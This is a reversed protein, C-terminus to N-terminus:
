PDIGEIYAALRRAESAETECDRDALQAVIAEADARARERYAVVREPEPDDAIAILSEASAMNLQVGMDRVLGRAQNASNCEFLADHEALDVREEAEEVAEERVLAELAIDNQWGVWMNISVIVGQAFLWFAIWNVTRRTLARSSIM